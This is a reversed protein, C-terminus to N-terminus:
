CGPCYSGSAGGRPGGVAAGRGGRGGRARGGGAAAWAAPPGSARLSTGVSWTRLKLRHFHAIEDPTSLLTGRGEFVEWSVGSQGWDERRVWVSGDSGALLATVPPLYRPLTVARKIVSLDAESPGLVKRADALLAPIVSDRLRGPVELPLFRMEKHWLTDGLGRLLSLLLMGNKESVEWSVTAVSTGIPNVAFTVQTRLPQLATFRHAGLLDLIMFQDRVDVSTLVGVLRGSRILFLPLETSGAELFEEPNLSPLLLETGDALLSHPAWTWLGGSLEPPQYREASLLRGRLFRTVRGLTGDSVWLTDGLWGLGTLRRFEGPGDGHKGVSWVPRGGPDFIAITREARDGIAVLGNPSPAVFGIDTALEGLRYSLGPGLTLTQGTGVAPTLVACAFGIAVTRGSRTRTSLTM